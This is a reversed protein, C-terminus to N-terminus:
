LSEYFYGEEILQRRLKKRTRSLLVATHNESLHYRKAIAAIPETFFYRRVFVDAERQPLARVFHRITEALQGAILTDEVDTEAQLCGALEELSLTLERGGRKQARNAKYRNCALCRTIKALFMQLVNPRHPPMSNWAQFWTDSLCEEADQSSGLMRHAISYCYGGYKTRSCVIAQPDRRWYLAVIKEDDM